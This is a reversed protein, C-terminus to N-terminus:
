PSPTKMEQFTSVDQVKWLVDTINKNQGLLPGFINFVPWDINCTNHQCYFDCLEDWIVVTNTIIDLAYMILRLLNYGLNASPAFIQSDKIQKFLM